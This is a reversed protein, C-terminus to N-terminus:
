KIIKKLIKFIKILFIKYYMKEVKIKKIIIIINKKYKKKRYNKKIIKKNNNKINLNNNFNINKIM